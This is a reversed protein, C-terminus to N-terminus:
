EQEDWFISHTVRTVTTDAVFSFLYTTDKKMLYKNVNTSGGSKSAGGTASGIVHSGIFTGVTAITPNAVLICDATTNLQRNNNIATIASGSSVIASEYMGAKDVEVSVWLCSNRISNSTIAVISTNASASLTQRYFASFRHGLIIEYDNYDEVLSYGKNAISRKNAPM